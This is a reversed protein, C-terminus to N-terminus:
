NPYIFNFGPCFLKNRPKFAGILLIFPCTPGVGLSFSFFFLFLHFAFPASPVSLLKPPSFNIKLNKEKWIKMRLNVFIQGGYKTPMFM